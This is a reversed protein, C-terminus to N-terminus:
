FVLLAAAIVELTANGEVLERIRGAFRSPTTRGVKLGFCAVPRTPEDACRQGTRISCPLYLQAFKAPLLATAMQDTCGSYAM